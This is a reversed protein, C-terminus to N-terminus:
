IAAPLGASQQPVVGVEVVAGDGTVFACHVPEGPQLRVLASGRRLLGAVADADAPRSADAHLRYALVWWARGSPSRPAPLCVLRDVALPEGAADALLM